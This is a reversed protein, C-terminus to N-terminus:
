APSVYYRYFGGTETWLNKADDYYTRRYPRERRVSFVRGGSISSSVNQLVADMRVDATRMNADLQGRKIARWLILPLTMLRVAGLGPVDTGAMFSGLIYLAVTGQPVAEQYIRTGVLAALPADAHLLDYSVNFAESVEDAM